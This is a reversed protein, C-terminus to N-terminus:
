QTSKQEIVWEIANIIQSENVVVNFEMQDMVQNSERVTYHFNLTKCCGSALCQDFDFGDIRYYKKYQPDSKKEKWLQTDTIRPIYIVVPVSVDQEDKFISITKKKISEYNISPFKLGHKHAYQEVKQLASPIDQSFDFFILIDSQREAREGSVPPYPLNFEIGADVLKLHKSKYLPTGGIGFMFNCVRAWSFRLQVVRSKTLVKEIVTKAISSRMKKAIREWALGIHAGYASGFVGFHFGLSQEPANDISKGKNFRRGYAWTPVYLAYVASGIEFPTFEYWPAQGVARIRADIATYIPFPVTGDKIYEIQDSLHVKQCKQGFFGGLLHKALFSGFLDVTTVFQYFAIKVALMNGILQADSSNVRYFDTTLRQAIYKKLHAVTKRTSMLLGLAWTSGSLTSIYTVADFLGIEQLGSFSGLSGLMARYGGGSCVVSITPIYKNELSIQLKKELATQVKARRRLLYDREGSYLENGFRVEAVISAYPNSDIAKARLAILDWSNYFLGKGQQWLNRVSASNLCTVIILCFLIIRFFGKHM